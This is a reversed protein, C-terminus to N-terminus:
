RSTPEMVVPLIRLGRFRHQKVCRRLERVAAMPQSIDVSAIGLFRDPYEAVVAAVEDNSLIPGQPGWWASLIGIRVHALDMSQVTSEVPIEPFESQGLWRLLSAFYPQEAFKKTPHQMWVDIIESM